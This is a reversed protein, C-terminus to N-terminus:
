AKAAGLGQVSRTLRSKHRDAANDHLIGKKAARDIESVTVSLLSSASDADGAAIATRLKKIQTRVRSTNSRNRARRKLSQRM